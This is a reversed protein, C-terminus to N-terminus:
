SQRDKSLTCDSEACESDIWNIIYAGMGQNLFMPPQPESYEILILHGSSSSLESVSRIAQIHSVSYFGVQILDNNRRDSHSIVWKCQSILGSWCVGVNLDIERSPFCPRHFRRIEETTLFGQILAFERAIKSNNPPYLVARARIIHKSQSKRNSVRTSRNSM